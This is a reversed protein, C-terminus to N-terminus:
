AGFRFDNAVLTSMQLNQLTISNNADITIVTDTGVQTTRSIVKAFTDFQTGLSLELVDGIAAGASFDTIVDRGFGSAASVPVTENTKAAM